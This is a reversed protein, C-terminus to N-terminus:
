RTPESVSEGEAREKMYCLVLLRELFGSSNRTGVASRIAATRNSISTSSVTEELIMTHLPVFITLPVGGSDCAVGGIDQDTPNGTQLLLGPDRRYLERPVVTYEMSIQLYGPESPNSTIGTPDGTDYQFVVKWTKSSDSIHEITYSTLYLSSSGPFLDGYGPLGNSGLIIESPKEIPNADDWVVFSRSATSKGANTSASRSEMLEYVQQPM